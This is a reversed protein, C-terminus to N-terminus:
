NAAWAVELWNTGNCVLTLVDDTGCARTTAGLRLNGSESFTQVSANCLLLLQRGLNAANCTNITDVTATTSTFTVVNCDSATTTTSPTVSACVGPIVAGSVFTVTGTGAIGWEYTGDGDFDFDMGEGTGNNNDDATFLLKGNSAMGGSEDAAGFTEISGDANVRAELTGDADPDMDLTTGDAELQVNTGDQGVDL